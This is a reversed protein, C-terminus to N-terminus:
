HPATLSRMAKREVLLPVFDRIPVDAFGDYVHQVTDDIDDAPISPYRQALRQVVENIQQAEDTAM